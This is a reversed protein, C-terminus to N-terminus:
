PMQTRWAAESSLLIAAGDKRGLGFLASMVINPRDIEDRSGAGVTGFLCGGGVVWRQLHATAALSMHTDVLYVTKYSAM